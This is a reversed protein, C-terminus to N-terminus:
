AASLDVAASRAAEAAAPVPARRSARQMLGPTVGYCAKFHRSLHSQDAFGCEYAVWTASRGEALLRRARALRVQAHYTMPPLGVARSFSRVLHSATVGTDATLEPLSVPHTPRGHLYRRARQVVAPGAPAPREAGRHRLLRELWRRVRDLLDAVLVAEEESDRLLARLEVAAVPNAIVASAFRPLESGAAAGVGHGIEALLSPAVYLVRWHTIPGPGAGEDHVTYPAVVSVELPGVPYRRFAGVSLQSRVDAVAFQWEEHLHPRTRGAALHACLLTADAEAIPRWFRVAIDSTM